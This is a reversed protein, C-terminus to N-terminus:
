KKHRMEDQRIHQDAFFVAGAFFLFCIDSMMFAYGLVACVSAIISSKSVRVLPQLNLEAITRLTTTKM